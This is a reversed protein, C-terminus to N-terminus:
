EVINIRDITNKSTDIVVACLQRLGTAEVQPAFTGNVFRDIIQDKDVGLVGNLAGTMGIDSIYLTGNPLRRNDATQVHTHTGVVAGKIGDLMYAIAMKESTAEAHMDIIYYDSKVEDIIKKVTKFPCDLPANNMYVRGLLNIVTITTDNYNITKYGNKPSNPYNAPIIVNSGEIYDHLDKQGWTHNGMTICSVGHSMIEKYHKFSLGRGKTANEGNVIVLNIANDKKIKELNDFLMSRGLDGVVDGVFLIRM